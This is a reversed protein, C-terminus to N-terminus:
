AESKYRGSSNATITISLSLYVLQCVHLCRGWGQRVNVGGRRMVLRV